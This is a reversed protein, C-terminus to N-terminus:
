RINQVMALRATDDAKHIVAVEAFGIPICTARCNPTWIPKPFHNTAEETGASVAIRAKGHNIARSNGGPTPSVGSAGIAARLASAVNPGSDRSSRIVATANASITEPQIKASLSPSFTVLM